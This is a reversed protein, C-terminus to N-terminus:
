SDSRSSGSRQELINTSETGNRKKMDYLLRCVPLLILYFGFPIAGPGAGIAALPVSGAISWPIMPSTIVATDELDLALDSNNTYVDQCLQRTLLITLTQNCAIMGTLVSTLLAATYNGNRAALHEIAKKAGDLLGTERFIGSYSSSLCVIGSVKLMSLIGGGNM